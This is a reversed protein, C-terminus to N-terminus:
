THDQQQLLASSHPFLICGMFMMPIFNSKKNKKLVEDMSHDTVQRQITKVFIKTNNFHLKVNQM